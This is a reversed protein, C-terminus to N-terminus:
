NWCFTATYSPSSCCHDAHAFQQVVVLLFFLRYTRSTQPTVKCIAQWIDSAWVALGVGGVRVCVCVCM